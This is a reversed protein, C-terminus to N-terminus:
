ASNMQNDIPDAYQKKMSIKGFQPKNPIIFCIYCGVPSVMISYRGRSSPKGEPKARPFVMRGRSVNWWPIGLPIDYKYLIDCYPFPKITGWGSRIVNVRADISYDVRRLHRENSGTRMSLIDNFQGYTRLDPYTYTISHEISITCMRQCVQWSEVIWFWTIEPPKGNPGRETENQKTGIRAM